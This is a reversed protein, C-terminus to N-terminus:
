LILVPPQSQVGLEACVALQQLRAARRLTHGHGEGDLIKSRQAAGAADKVALRRCPMPLLSPCAPAQRLGVGRLGTHGPLDKPGVQSWAGRVLHVFRM